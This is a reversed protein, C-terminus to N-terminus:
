GVDPWELRIRTGAGVASHVVARGGVTPWGAASRSACATGTPHSPPWTSAPATTPSRSWSAIADRSLRLTAAAGPAHRVVNSLAAYASESIADAVGVPVTCSALDPPSRWSPCGASWWGCGSTSRCRATAPRGPAVDTLAVLTRLDAACRDRFVASPGAVAGLGVM